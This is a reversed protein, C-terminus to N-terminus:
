FSETFYFSWFIRASLISSFLLLCVTLPIKKLPCVHHYLKFYTGSAYVRLLPLPSPPPSSPTYSSLNRSMPGCDIRLWCLWSVYTHTYFFPRSFSPLLPTSHRWIQSIKLRASLSLASSAKFRKVRETRIFNTENRKLPELVVEKTDIITTLFSIANM